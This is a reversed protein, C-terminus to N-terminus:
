TASMERRQWCHPPQELANALHFIPVVLLSLVNTSCMSTRKVYSFRTSLSVAAFVFAFFALSIGGM